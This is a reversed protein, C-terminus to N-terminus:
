NVSLSFLSEYGNWVEQPLVVLSIPAGEQGATRVLENSYAVLADRTRFEKLSYTM